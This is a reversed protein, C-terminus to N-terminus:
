KKGHKPHWARVLRHTEAIQAPTMDNAVIDRFKPADKDGQTAALSFWKHAQVLNQTFGNGTGYMLGLYNQAKAIGQEAAKRVWRAAEGYDQPLGQGKGYMLGLNYQAMAAGQEALARFERLATAYDGREHAIMGDNFGASVPASILMAILVAAIDKRGPMSM